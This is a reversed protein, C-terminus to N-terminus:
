RDFIGGIYEKYSKWSSSSGTYIPKQVQFQSATKTILTSKEPSLMEKEWSIGLYEVLSRLERETESTLSEYKVTYFFYDPWEQMMTEYLEYYRLTDDLNYSYRLGTSGFHTRYNSWCVAKKDRSMHIIKAEPIAAKIIPIYRFNQPMKDVVYSHNESKNKLVTLYRRRVYALDETSIQEGTQIIPACIERVDELEGLCKVKSHCSLIKELLSTGSRPMGVILIPIIRKELREVIKADNLSKQKEILIQHWTIEDILRYPLHRRREQNALQIYEFAKKYDRHDEFVKALGFYKSANNSATLASHPIKEMKKVLPAAVDIKKITTLMRFPECDSADEAILGELCSVALDISGIDKYAVALNRLILRDERLEQYRTYFDIAKQNEGLQQYAKGLEILVLKSQRDLEHALMLKAIADELRQLRRLTFGLSYIVAFNRPHLNDALEFQQLALNFDGQEIYVNGLTCIGQMHSANILLLGELTQQAKELYGGKHYAIALNCLYSQNKPELQICKLLANIAKSFSGLKLESLGVLQYFQADGYFLPINMKAKNLVNQYDQNYFAKTMESLKAQVSARKKVM